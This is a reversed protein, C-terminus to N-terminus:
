QPIGFEFCVKGEEKLNYAKIYGGHLDAARQVVSLGLGSGGKGERSTHGREFIIETDPIFGNNIVYLRVYGDSKETRITVEGPEGYNLANIILNQAVREVIKPDAYASVCEDSLNYSFTKGQEESKATFRASLSMIGKNLDYGRPSITDNSELQAFGELDALLDEIRVISEVIIGSYRLSDEMEKSAPPNQTGIFEELNRRVIRAFGGTTSLFHRIDHALERSIDMMDNALRNARKNEKVLKEHELGSYVAGAAMDGFMHYFKYRDSFDIEKGPQRSTLVIMGQYNGDAILPLVLEKIFRKDPSPQLHKRYGAWEHEPSLHEPLADGYSAALRLSNDDQKIYLGVSGYTGNSAALGNVILECREQLSVAELVSDFVDGVVHLRRRKQLATQSHMALAEFDGRAIADEILLELEDQQESNAM